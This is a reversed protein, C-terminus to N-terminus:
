RTCTFCTFNHFIRDVGDWGLATQGGFLKGVALEDAGREAAAFVMMGVGRGSWSAFAIITVTSVVVGIASGFFSGWRLVGVGLIKIVLLLHLRFSWHNQDQVVAFFNVADDLPVVFVAQLDVAGAAGGVQHNELRRDFVHVFLALLLAPIASYNVEDLDIEM